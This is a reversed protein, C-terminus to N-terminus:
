KKEGMDSNLQEVVIKKLRNEKGWQIAKAGNNFDISQTLTSRDRSGRNQKM